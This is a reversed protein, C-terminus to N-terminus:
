SAPVILGPSQCSDRHTSSVPQDGSCSPFPRPRISRTSPHSLRLRFDSPVSSPPKSSQLISVCHILLVRDYGPPNTRTGLGSPCITVSTLLGSAISFIAPQNSHRRCRPGKDSALCLPSRLGCGAGRMPLRPGVNIAASRAPCYATM